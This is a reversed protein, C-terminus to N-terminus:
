VTEQCVTCRCAVLLPNWLCVVTTVSITVRLLYPIHSTSALYKTTGSLPPDRPQMVSSHVTEKDPEQFDEWEEDTQGSEEQPTSSHNQTEEAQIRQRKTPVLVSSIPILQVSSHGGFPDLSNASIHDEKVEIASVEKPLITAYLPVSTQLVPALSHKSIPERERPAHSVSTGEDSERFVVAPDDLNQIRESPVLTPLLADINAAPHIYRDAYVSNLREADGEPLDEPSSKAPTSPQEEPQPSIQLNYHNRLSALAASGQRRARDRRGPDILAQGLHWFGTFCTWLVICSLWIKGLLQQSYTCRLFTEHPHSFVNACSQSVMSKGSKRPKVPSRVSKVDERNNDKAEASQIKDALCNFDPPVKFSNWLMSHMSYSAKHLRGQDSDESGLHLYAKLLEEARSGKWIPAQLTSQMSIVFRHFRSCM